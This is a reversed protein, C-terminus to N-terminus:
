VGHWRAITEHLAVARRDPYRHWEIGAMAAALEERWGPPPPFPSENTNLRVAVDVQASHYGDMARLDDRIPVLDPGPVNAVNSALHSRQGMTEGDTSAVAASSLAAASAM